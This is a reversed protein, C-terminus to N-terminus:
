GVETIKEGTRLLHARGLLQQIATHMTRYDANASAPRAIIVIDWGPELIATRLIERLRRKVINRTVAGGVRSSVSFGYRTVPLGNSSFKMVATKNVLSAGKNFVAKFQEPKTLYQEGHM